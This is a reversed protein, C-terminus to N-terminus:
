VMFFILIVEDDQTRVKLQGEDINIIIIATKMLPIDLILGDDEEMDM